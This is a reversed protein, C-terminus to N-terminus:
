GLREQNYYAFIRHKYIDKLLGETHAWNLLYERAKNIADPGKAIYTATWMPEVKKFTTTTDKSNKESIPMYLDIGGTHNYNEDFGM